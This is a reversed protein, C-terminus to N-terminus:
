RTCCRFRGAPSGPWRDQDRGAHDRYLRHRRSRQAPRARDGRQRRRFAPQRGRRDVGLRHGAPGHDPQALSTGFVLAATVATLSVAIGTVAPRVPVAAAGQGPEFALRLGAVVPAPLQRRAAWRSARSGPRPGGGGALGPAARLRAVRWATVAARATLAAALVAAGGLLIAANFELGPSVEAQRALGIPTLGSLAWAAPVALAMGGASILAAPVLAMAFLQGRSCGLARLATFDTSSAWALRSLGQAVIVLLAVAVLAGFLALALAQLTTGRQAAAAAVTDDSGPDVQARGHSIARVQAEFAPLGADGRRLQFALGLDSAVKRHVAQYFAANLYVAGNGQYSVDAPVDANTALDRPLRLIGVVRVSPLGVRPPVYAGSFVQEAQSPRYGRLAIVAGVGIHMARAASENIMAQGPQSSDALRGAVIIPRSQPPRDLIAWPLVQSQPRGRVYPVALILSGRQSWAVSPLAAVRRMVAPSASVQGQTVGAYALFRSVATDTRRAGALSVLVVAGMLAVVLMLGAPTRWDQRLGHRVRLWVAPMWHGGDREYRLRNQAM